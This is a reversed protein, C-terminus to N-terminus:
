AAGNLLSELRQEFDPHWGVFRRESLQHLSGHTLFVESYRERLRVVDSDRLEQLLIRGAKEKDEDVSETTFERAMDHFARRWLERLKDEYRELEGPYLLGERTWRSRQTYARHYDRIADALQDNSYAIWRLQEVFVSSGYHRLEAETPDDLGYDDPLDQPDFRERLDRTFALLDSSSISEHTALMRVCRGYWWGKLREIYANAQNPTFTLTLRMAAEIRQDIDVLEPEAARVVISSVFRRREDRNLALFKQRPGVTEANTSNEAASELRGIAAEIGRDAGASLSHSAMGPSSTSTSLLTLAPMPGAVWPRDPLDLWVGLTRWLDPSMDTLDAGAGTHHKLQLIDIARGDAEIHIDDLQELFLAIEQRHAREVLEVLARECQYLYGMAAPGAQHISGTM